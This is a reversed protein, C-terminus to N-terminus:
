WCVLITIQFKTNRKRPIDELIDKLCAEDVLVKNYETSEDDDVLQGEHDVHGEIRYRKEMEFRSM